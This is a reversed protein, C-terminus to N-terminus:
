ASPSDPEPDDWDESGPADTPEPTPENEEVLTPTPNVVEETPIAKLDDIEARLADLDPGEPTEPLSEPLDHSDGTM